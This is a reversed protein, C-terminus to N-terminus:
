SAQREQEGLEHAFARVFAEKHLMFMDKRLYGKINGRGFLKQQRAIMDVDEQDKEIKLECLRREMLKRLPWLFWPLDLEIELHARTAAVLRALEAHADEAM